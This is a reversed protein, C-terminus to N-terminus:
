DAQLMETTFLSVDSDPQRCLRIEAFENGDIVDDNTTYAIVDIGTGATITTTTAAALASADYIYETCDGASPILTTLTSTAPFTLAIVAQGAGGAAFSFYDGSLLEAQTLAYTGGNADTLTVAGGGYTLNGVATLANSVIAGVKSIQFQDSTGVKIGERFTNNVQNYVGGLSSNLPLVLAILLGVIVGAIAIGINTKTM